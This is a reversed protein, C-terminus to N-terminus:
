EDNNILCEFKKKKTIKDLIYIKLKNDSDVCFQLLVEYFGDEYIENKFHNVDICCRTILKNNKTYKNEGEYVNICLISGTKKVKIMKDVKIPISSGKEIVFDMLGNLTEVGFSFNSINNLKIKQMKNNSNVCNLIAGIIVNLNESTNNDNIFLKQTIIKNERFIESILLQKFKINKTIQGILIIDNIENLSLKSSYITDKILSIIKKFVNLCSKEYDSKNVSMKLDTNEYIKNINIETQIIDKCFLDNIIEFSKRLKALSEPCSLCNNKINEKFDNLCNFFFNDIFDEDEFTISKNIIVELINNNKNIISINACGSDINLILINKIQNDIKTSLSFAALNTINEIKLNNLQIIYNRGYTKIIKESNKTVTIDNINPFLNNKFIKEIIMRQYYTFNNPVSIVLYIEITKYKSNINNDIIIKTFFMDFLKKLYLILLDEIYYNNLKVKVYPMNNKENNYLKFPWLNTKGKIENSNKGLLKIFNFFTQNSNSVRLDDAEYGILIEGNKNDFSIISPISFTNNKYLEINNESTALGLKCNTNGLELGMYIPGLNKIYFENGNNIINSNISNNVNNNNILLNNRKGKNIFKKHIYVKKEKQNNIVKNNESKYMNNMNNENKNLNKNSSINNNINNFKSDLKKDISHYTHDKSIKTMTNYFKLIPKNDFSSRRLDSTNSTYKVGTITHSSTNLLEPGSDKNHIDFGKYDYLVKNNIKNNTSLKIPLASFNRYARKYINTNNNNNKYSNSDIIIKNISNQLLNNFNLLNKRSNNINDTHNRKHSKNFDKQEEIFEPFPKKKNLNDNSKERYTKREYSIPIDNKIHNITFESNNNLNQKSFFLKNMISSQNNKKSTSASTNKQLSSSPLNNNSCNAFNATKLDSNENEHDNKKSLINIIKQSDDIINSKQNLSFLIEKMNNYPLFKEFDKQIKNVKNNDESLYYSQMLELIKSNKNENIDDIIMNFINRYKFISNFNIKNYDFTSVFELADTMQEIFNKYLFDVENKWNTLYEFFKKYNIEYDKLHKKMLSIENLDPLINDYNIFKHNSHSEEECNQCIDIKCTACFKSFECHHKECMYNFLMKEKIIAKLSTLSPLITTNKISNELKQKPNPSDFKTIYEESKIHKTM